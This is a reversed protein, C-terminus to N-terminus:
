KLAKRRKITFGLLGTMIGTGLMAATAPEPVPANDKVPYGIDRGTDYSEINRIYSCYYSDFTLHQVDTRRYGDPTIITWFPVQIVMHQWETSNSVAAISAFSYNGGGYTDGNYELIDPYFAYVALHWLHSGEVIGDFCYDFSLTDKLVIPVNVADTVRYDYIDPVLAAANTACLLGFVVSLLTKKMIM